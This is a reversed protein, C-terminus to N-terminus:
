RPAASDGFSLRTAVLKLFHPDNRHRCVLVEARVVDGPSVHPEPGRDLIVTSADVFIPNGRRLASELRTVYLGFGASRVTTRVERKKAGSCDNGREDPLTSNEGYLLDHLRTKPLQPFYGPAMYLTSPDGTIALAERSPVDAVAVLPVSTSTGSSGPMDGCPPITGHGLSRGLLAPRRLRTGSYTTGQWEVAAICSAAASGASGSPKQERAAPSRPSSSLKQERGRQGLIGLAIAAVAAIPLGIALAVRLPRRRRHERIPRRPGERARFLDALKV